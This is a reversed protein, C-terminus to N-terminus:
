DSRASVARLPDAALLQQTDPQQRTQEWYAPALELVRSAPWRPLLSLVDRFYAWPEIGHLACSAILSVFVTNWRAGDSSGCFLWNKRGVVQRRLELESINNDLRLRGDELFRELAARHNRAYNMAKRIPSQPLVRNLEGDIWEYFREVVPRCYQKRFREKKKRPMDIAKRELGFLKSIFSLATRAREPDTSLAEFFNRRCHSWCAVETPPGQRFMEDYVASADAIVYGDYGELLKKPQAKTHETTYRFLVHKREAVMVWFHHRKCQEKALVLVGSADIGIWAANALADAHMADTVRELLEACPELWGGLTSRSLPVGQREFIASQRHLPLHDGYKSVIVHALLGVGAKGRPIPREPPEGVVVGQSPDNRDAYKPRVVQVRVFSASRWELQESVEEGIRIKGEHLEPPDIEIREVPLHEPLPERGHPKPANQKRRRHGSVPTTDEAGESEATPTTRALEPAAQELALQMQDPDVHEAKRGFLHRRTRELELSLAEYLKRFEDREHRVQELEQELKAIREEVSGSDAV